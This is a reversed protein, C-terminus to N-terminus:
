DRVHKMGLRLGQLVKQQLGAQEVTQGSRQTVRQGSSLIARLHKGPEVLCVEEEIRQISRALPIAVMRKKGLSHLLLGSAAQAFLVQLFEIASGTAPIPLVILRQLGDFGSQSSAIELERSAQHLIKRM